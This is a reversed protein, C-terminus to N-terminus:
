NRFVIFTSMNGTIAHQGASEISSLNLLIGGNVLTGTFSSINRALVQGSETSLMDNSGNYWVWRNSNYSIFYSDGDSWTWVSTSSASRLGGSAMGAGYVVQNLAACTKLSTSMAMTSRHWINQLLMYFSMIGASILIMLGAAILMEVLTFGSASRRHRKIDTSRM